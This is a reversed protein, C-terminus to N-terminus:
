LDGEGAAAITADVSSNLARGEIVGGQQAVPVIGEHKCIYRAFVSSRGIGNHFSADAPHGINFYDLAAGILIGMGITIGATVGAVGAQVAVILTLMGLNVLGSKGAAFAAQGHLGGDGLAALGTVEPVVAVGVGVRAICLVRLGPFRGQLQQLIRYAIVVLAEVLIHGQVQIPMVDRSRATVAGANAHRQGQGVAARSVLCLPASAAQHDARAAKFSM